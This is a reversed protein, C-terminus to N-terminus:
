AHEIGLRESAMKAGAVRAKIKRMAVQKAFDPSGHKPKADIGLPSFGWSALQILFYGANLAFLSPLLNCYPVKHSHVSDCDGGACTHIGINAREPGSFRSLVRNNLEFFCRPAPEPTTPPRKQIGSPKQDRSDAM